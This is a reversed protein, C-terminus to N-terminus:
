TPNKSGIVAIRMLGNTKDVELESGLLAIHYEIECQNESWQSWGKLSEAAGCSVPACCSQDYITKM